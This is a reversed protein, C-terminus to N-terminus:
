QQVTDTDASLNWTFADHENAMEQRNKYHNRINEMNALIKEVLNKKLNVLQIGVSEKVAVLNGTASIQVVVNYAHKRFSIM